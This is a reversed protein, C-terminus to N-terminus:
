GFRRTNREEEIGMKVSERTSMLFSQRYACFVYIVKEKLMISKM